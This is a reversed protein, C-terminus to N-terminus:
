TKTALGGEGRKYLCWDSPEPGGNDLVVADVDASVKNGFLTVNVPVMKKPVYNLECGMGLWGPRGLGYGKDIKKERGEGVM